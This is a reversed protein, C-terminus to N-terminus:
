RQLARTELDEKLNIILRGASVFFVLLKPTGARRDIGNMSRRQGAEKDRIDLATYLITKYPSVTDGAAALELFRRTGNPAWDPRVQHKQPM